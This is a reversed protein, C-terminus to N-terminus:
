KKAMESMCNDLAYKKLVTDSAEGVRGGFSKEDVNANQNQINNANLKESIDRMLQTNKERITTRNNRYIIYKRAVDKRNSTMLKEEVQDQIEEVTMNKNLCEIYDAIERAKEKAYDTKERDVEIFAKLVAMKIKEKDFQVKRGDRKQVILIIM